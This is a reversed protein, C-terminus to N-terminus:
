KREAPPRSSPEDTRKKEAARGGESKAERERKADEEEMQHIRQELAHFGGKKQQEAM